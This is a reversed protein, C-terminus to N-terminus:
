VVTPLAVSFKVEAVEAVSVKLSPVTLRVTVSDFIQAHGAGATAEDQRAQQRRDRGGATRGRAERRRERGCWPRGSGGRDAHDM